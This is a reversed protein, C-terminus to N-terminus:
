QSSKAVVVMLSRNCNVSGGKKTAKRQGVQRFTRRLGKNPILQLLAALLLIIRWRPRNYRGNLPAFPSLPPFDEVM